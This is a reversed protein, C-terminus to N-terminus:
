RRKVLARLTEEDLARLKEEDLARLPGLL